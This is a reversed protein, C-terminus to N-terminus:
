QYISPKKRVRVLGNSMKEEFVYPNPDIYAAAMSKMERSKYM